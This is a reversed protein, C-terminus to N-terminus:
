VIWAIGWIQAIQPFFGMDPCRMLWAWLSDLRRQRGFKCRTRATTLPAPLLIRTQTDQMRLPLTMM